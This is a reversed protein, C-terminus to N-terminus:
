APALEGLRRVRADVATRDAAAIGAVGFAEVAFSACAAGHRLARSLTADDSGPAEVLYGLMGGAFADGAGTPDRTAAVPYAVTRLEAARTLLLAGAGGRKLVVTDAGRELIRQAAAPPEGPFLATAEAENVFVIDADAFVALVAERESEIWETMTDVGIVRPRPIGELAARQVRPSGNALFIADAPPSRQGLRPRWEAAVGVETNLTEATRLAGDYRGRWRLSPGRARTVASIDVGHGRLVALDEDRFDDGIVGVVSVTAYLRAALAFYSAAGGLMGRRSVTPTEVDDYALAGVVVIHAV